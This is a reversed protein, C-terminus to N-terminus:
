ETTLRELAAFDIQPQRNGGTRKFKSGYETTENVFGCNQLYFSGDSVGGNYDMRLGKRGTNDCTFSADTVEHWKGSNDRVWQNAFEVRRPMFSLSPNFCELFSHPHTYWKDTMPRCLESLLHWTGNEDCFYGTYITNGKGDPRVRVLTKYTKGTQWPYRMFSQKGSGENGFNQATVGAGKALVKVHMSDPIENPNDTSYPSWVSFLVMNANQGGRRISQIGMYGEGFGTLMFYTGNVDSGDPVTVENYFYEINDAPLQYNLHVSPGRRTWYAEGADEISSYHLKGESAKGTIAIGDVSAFTAASKSLGQLDVRVYGPSAVKFTGCDYDAVAGGKITVKRSKNGVTVKIKSRDAAKDGASAQLYLRLDGATPTKFYLSIVTSPDTWDAVDGTISITSNEDESYDPRSSEPSTVFINGQTPIVIAGEPLSTGAHCCLGGALILALFASKCFTNVNM